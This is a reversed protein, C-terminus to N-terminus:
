VPADEFGSATVCTAQSAHTPIFSSTCTYLSTLRGASKIACDLPDFYFVPLDPNTCIYVNKPYHYPSICDFYFLEISLQSPIISDSSFRYNFVTV